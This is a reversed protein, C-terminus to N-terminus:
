NVSKTSVNEQTLWFHLQSVYNPAIDLPNSWAGVLNFGMLSYAATTAITVLATSGALWPVPLSLAAFGWLCVSSSVQLSCHLLWYGGM